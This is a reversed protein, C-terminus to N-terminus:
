NQIKPCCYQSVYHDLTFYCKNRPMIRRNIEKHRKAQQNIDVGLYKFNSVRESTLDGVVLLDQTYERRSIILYKMKQNNMQLGIEKRKSILKEATQIVCEETEGIIIIDDM